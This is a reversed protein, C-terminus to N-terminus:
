EAVEQPAQEQELQHECLKKRVVRLEAQKFDM